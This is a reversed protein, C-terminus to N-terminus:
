LELSTLDTTVDSVQVEFVWELVDGNKESKLFSVSVVDQNFVQSARNILAQASVASDARGQIMLLGNEKQEVQTLQAHEDVLRPLVALWNLQGERQQHSEILSSYKQSVGYSLVKQQLAGLELTLASNVRNSKQFGDNIFFLVGSLVLTSFLFAFIAEQVLRIKPSNLHANAKQWLNLPMMFHGKFYQGLMWLSTYSSQKDFGELESFHVEHVSIDLQTQLDAVIKSWHVASGLAYLTKLQRKHAAGLVHNFMRVIEAIVFGISLNVEIKSQYESIAELGFQKMLGTNLSQQFVRVQQKENFWFLKIGENELQCMVYSAHEHQKSFYTALVLSEACVYRVKYYTGAFLLGYQAVEAQHALLLSITQTSLVHDQPLVTWDYYVDSISLNSDKTIQQVVQYEIEEFDLDKPVDFYEIQVAANPLLISVEVAHKISGIRELLLSRVLPVDTLIRAAVLDLPLILEGAQLVVNGDRLIFRLVIGDLQLMLQFPARKFCRLFKKINELYM